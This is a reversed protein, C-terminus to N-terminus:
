RWSKQLRPDAQSILAILGVDNRKGCDKGTGVKADPADPEDPKDAMEVGPTCGM